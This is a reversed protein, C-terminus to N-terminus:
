AGPASTVGESREPLLFGTGGRGRPLGRTRSAEAKAHTANAAEQTGAVPASLKAVPASRKATDVSGSQRSGCTLGNSTVASM